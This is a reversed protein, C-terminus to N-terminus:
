HGYHQRVYAMIMGVVLLPCGLMGARYAWETLASGSKDPDGNEAGIDDALGEIASRDKGSLGDSGLREALDLIRRQESEAFVTDLDESHRFGHASSGEKACDLMKGTKEDLRLGDTPECSDGPSAFEVSYDTSQNLSVVLGGCSLIAGLGICVLM